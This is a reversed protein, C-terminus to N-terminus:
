AFIIWFYNNSHNPEALKDKARFMHKGKVMSGQALYLENDLNWAKTGQHKQSIAAITQYWRQRGTNRQPSLQEEMHRMSTPHHDHDKQGHTYNPSGEACCYTVQSGEAKQKKPM